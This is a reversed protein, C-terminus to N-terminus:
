AVRLAVGVCTGPSVFALLREMREGVEGSVRSSLEPLELGETQSVDFVYVSRFGVLVSQNQTRVDKAAETDKKRRVGTMPALIRIGKEGKNVRRGLQNWAYMGAVRTASPKQRAIELINGFSYNHFRGMATLYATVREENLRFQFYPKSASDWNFVPEFLAESNYSDDNASISVPRPRRLNAVELLQSIWDSRIWPSENLRQSTAFHSIRGARFDRLTTWLRQFSPSPATFDDSTVDTGILTQLATTSGLGDLWDPLRRLAGKFTFGVQLKITDFYEQKGSRDILNRLQLKRVGAAMAIKCLETPHDNGFLVSHTTKNKRFREAIAPWLSEETCHDRAIESALILFLAGFMERSSATYVGEVREQWTRDCWNRPRGYQADFWSQLEAVEGATIRAEAVSRPVALDLFKSLFYWYVDELEMSSDLNRIPNRGTSM